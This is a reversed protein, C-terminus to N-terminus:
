EERDLLGDKLMAEVLVGATGFFKPMLEGASEATLDLHLAFDTYLGAITFCFDQILEAKTRELEENTFTIRMYEMKDSDLNIIM